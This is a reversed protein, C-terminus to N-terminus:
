LFWGGALLVKTDRAGSAGLGRWAEDDEKSLVPPLLYDTSERRARISCVHNNKPALMGVWQILVQKIDELDVGM